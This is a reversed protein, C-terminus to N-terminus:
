SVAFPFCALVTVRASVDLTALAPVSRRGNPYFRVFEGLDYCAVSVVENDDSKLLDILARCATAAAAVAVGKM